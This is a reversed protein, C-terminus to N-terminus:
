TTVEIARYAKLPIAGFVFEDARRHQASTKPTKKKNKKKASFLDKEKLAM